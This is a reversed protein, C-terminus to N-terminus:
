SARAPEEAAESTTTVDLQETLEFDKLTFYFRSGEGPTSTLGITGGHQEVLAKSIALGLGTGKVLPNESDTSQRFKQFIKEQNEPAIGRGHDRVEFLLRDSQAEVRVEVESDKPSFKISNSLLNTLTQQIRDADALIKGAPLPYVKIKIGAQSSIGKLGKVTQSVLDQIDVWEKKLPLRRAEIKALDLIDNILRILRDTEEEAIALLEMASKPVEGVAGSTLLGLSGKISTMPTRLEHSAINLFESKAKDLSKLEEVNALVKQAVAHFTTQISGMENDPAVKIEYSYKDNLFDVMQHQIEKLPKFINTRLFADLYILGSATIIVVLLWLISTTKTFYTVRSTAYENFAAESKNFETLRISYLKTNKSSYAQALNSFFIKREPPAVQSRLDQLEEFKSEDFSNVSLESVLKNAKASVRQQQQLKKSQGSQNRIIAALLLNTFVLAAIIFFVKMRIPSM